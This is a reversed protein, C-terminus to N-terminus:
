RSQAKTNETLSTLDGVCINELSSMVTLQFFSYCFIRLNLALHKGNNCKYGSSWGQASSLAEEGFTSLYCSGSKQTWSKCEPTVSCLLACDEPNLKANSIDQGYNIM